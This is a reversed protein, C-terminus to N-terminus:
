GHTVDHPYHHEHVAPQSIALEERRVRRRQEAENSVSAEREESKSEDAEDHTHTTGTDHRRIRRCLHAGKNCQM